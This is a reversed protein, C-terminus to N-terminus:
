DKIFGYFCVNLAVNRAKWQSVVAHTPARRSKFGECYGKPYLCTKERKLEFLM